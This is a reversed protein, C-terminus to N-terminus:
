VDDVIDPRARLSVNAFDVEVLVADFAAHATPEQAVCAAALALDAVPVAALAQGLDDGEVREAVYNGVMADDFRVSPWAARATALVSALLSPDM